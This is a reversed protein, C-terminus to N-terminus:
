VPSTPIFRLVMRLVANLMATPIQRAENSGISYACAALVSPDSTPLDTYNIRTALERHHQDAVLALYDIGTATPPAPATEPHAGPHVHRTIKHPVAIGM